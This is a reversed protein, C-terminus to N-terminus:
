CNSLGDVNDLENLGGNKLQHKRVMSFSICKDLLMFFILNEMLFLDVFCVM